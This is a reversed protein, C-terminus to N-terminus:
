IKQAAHYVIDSPVFIVKTASIHKIRWGKITLENAHELTDGSKEIQKMLAEWQKPLLLVLAHISVPIQNVYVYVTQGSSHYFELAFEYIDDQPLYRIRSPKGEVIVQTGQIRKTM